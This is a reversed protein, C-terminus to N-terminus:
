DLLDNPPTEDLIILPIEETECLTSEEFLKRKENVTLPDTMIPWVKDPTLDSDDDTGSSGVDSLIPSRTCKGSSSFLIDRFLIPCQKSDQNSLSSSLDYEVSSCSKITSESCSSSDVVIVNEATSSSTERNTLKKSVYKGKSSKVHGFSDSGHLKCLLMDDSDCTNNNKTEYSNEPKLYKNDVSNSCNLIMGEKNSRGNDCIQVRHKIPLNTEVFLENDSTFTSNKLTKNTNFLLDSKMNTFDSVSYESTKKSNFRSKGPRTVPSLLSAETIKRSDFVLDRTDQTSSFVSDGSIKRSESMLDENAKKTNFVSNTINVSSSLSKELFKAKKSESVLCEPIKVSNLLVDESSNKSKIKLVNEYINRSNFESGELYKSNFLINEHTKRLKISSGELTKVSNITTEEAKTKPVEKSKNCVSCSKFIESSVFQPKEESESFSGSLSYESLSDNPKEKETHQSDTIDSSSESIQSSHHDTKYINHHSIYEQKGQLMLQKECFPINKIHKSSCLKGLPVHEPASQESDHKQLQGSRCFPQLWRVIESVTSGKPVVNPYVNIPKLHRILDQIETLSSHMSYCVRYFNQRASYKISQVTVHHAYWMACLKITLVEMHNYGTPQYCCPLYSMTTKIDEEAKDSRYCAHLKTSKYNVTLVEEIESIGSYKALTHHNVHVKMNLAQYLKIFMYEYGFQASCRFYVVRNTGYNLWWQVLSKVAEFSEDRSPIYLAEPFCFTTDVYVSQIDKVQSFSYYLASSKAADGVAWRFDGTYLVTGNM